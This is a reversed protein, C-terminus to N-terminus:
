SLNVSQVARGRSAERAGHKAVCQAFMAGTRVMGVLYFHSHYLYVRKVMMMTVKVNSVEVQLSKRQNVDILTKAGKGVPAVQALKILEDISSPSISPPKDSVGTYLYRDPITNLSLRLTEYVRRRQATVTPRQKCRCHEFSWDLQRVPMKYNSIIKLKYELMSPAFGFQMQFTQSFVKFVSRHFIPPNCNSIMIQSGRCVQGRQCM